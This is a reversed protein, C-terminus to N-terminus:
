CNPKTVGLYHITGSHTGVRVYAKRGREGGNKAIGEAWLNELFQFHPQALEM